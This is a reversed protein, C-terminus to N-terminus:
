IPYDCIDIALKGGSIKQIFFLRPPKNWIGMYAYREPM